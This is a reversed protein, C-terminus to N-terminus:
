NIFLLNNQCKNIKIVDHGVRIGLWSFAPLIIRSSSFDRKERKVVYGIVDCDFLKM